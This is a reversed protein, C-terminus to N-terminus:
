VSVYVGVKDQRESLDYSLVRLVDSAAVQQTAADEAAVFVTTAATAAAAVDDDVDPVLPEVEM